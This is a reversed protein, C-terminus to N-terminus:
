LVNKCYYEANWHQAETNNEEEEDYAGDDDDIQHPKEKQGKKQIVHQTHYFHLVHLFWNFNGTKM